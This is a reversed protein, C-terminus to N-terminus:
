PRIRKGMLATLPIQLMILVIVSSFLLDVATLAHTSEITKLIIIRFIVALFIIWGQIRFGSSYSIKASFVNQVSTGLLILSCLLGYSKLALSGEFLIHKTLITAAIVACSLAIGQIFSRKLEISLDIKQGSATQRWLRQYNISLLNLSSLLLVQIIVFEAFQEPSLFASAWIRDWNGLLGLGITVVFFWNSSFIQIKLNTDLQMNSGSKFGNQRYFSYFATVSLVLTSSIFMLYFASEEPLKFNISLTIIAPTTFQPISNILIFSTQFGRAIREKLVFQSFLSVFTTLIMTFFLLPSEDIRWVVLLSIPISIALCDIGVRKYLKKLIMIRNAEDLAHDNVIKMQASFRGLEILGGFTSLALWIGYIQMGNLGYASLIAKSTILTSGFGTIMTVARAILPVDTIM